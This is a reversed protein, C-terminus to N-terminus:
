VPDSVPPDAPPPSVVTPPSQVKFTVTENGLLEQPLKAFTLKVDPNGTLEDIGTPELYGAHAENNKKFDSSSKTLLGGLFVAVLGSVGAVQTPAPVSVFQALGVYFTVFLPIFVRVIWQLTDYVNQSLKM